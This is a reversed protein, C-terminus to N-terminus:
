RDRFPQGFGVAAKDRDGVDRAGGEDQRARADGLREILGIAFEIMARISIISNM